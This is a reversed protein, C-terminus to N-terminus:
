LARSEPKQFQKKLGRLVILEKQIWFLVDSIGLSLLVVALYPPAFQNPEAIEMRRRWM